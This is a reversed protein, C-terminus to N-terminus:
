RLISLNEGIALANMLQFSSKIASAASRNATNLMASLRAADVGIQRFNHALSQCATTCLQLVKSEADQLLRKILSDLVAQWETSFEKEMPDCLEQNFDIAGVTPSTYV